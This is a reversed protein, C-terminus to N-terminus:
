QNKGFLADELEKLMEKSDIQGLLAKSTITSWDHSTWQGTYPTIPTLKGETLQEYCVKMVEDNAVDPESAVSKLFPMSLKNDVFQKHNEKTLYNTLFDFTAQKNNSSQFIVACGEELISFRKGNKGTPMPLVGLKDGLAKKLEGYSGLHHTMMAAKGSILYARQEASGDNIATKPVVKYKRFLDIFFQNGEIVEPDTFAIFKGNDDYFRPNAMDALAFCFWGGQGNANGRMAYGYQDIEGDNNKDVTLKIAADLFEQMTTPPKVGAQEFIDKRYYLLHNVLETPIFYQKGNGSVSKFTDAVGEQLDDKGSWNNYYEDLPVLSNNANFTPFWLIQFLACDPANGSMVNTMLKDFYDSWPIWEIDVKVKDKNAENYKDAIGGYVKTYDDGSIYALFKLNVPGKNEDAKTESQTGSQNTVANNEENSKNGQSCGSFISVSLVLIVIVCTIKKLM